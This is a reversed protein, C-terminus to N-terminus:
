ISFFGLKAFSQVNVTMKLFCDGMEKKVSSRKGEGGKKLVGIFISWTM